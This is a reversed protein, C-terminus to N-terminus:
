SVLMATINDPGGRANAAIVLEEPTVGRLLSENLEDDRLVRYLGDTCLLLTDGERWVFSLIEVEVDWGGVSQTLADPPAYYIEGGKGSRLRILNETRVNHDTTLAALLGKRLLYARSDGVHGVQAIGGSFRVATLTTGMGMVQPYLRALRHLYQSTKGILVGLSYNQKAEVLYNLYSLAARSALRGAPCGGMGDAIAFLETRPNILYFDENRLKHMGVDTAVIAKM